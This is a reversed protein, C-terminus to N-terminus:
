QHNQGQLKSLASPPRSFLLAKAPLEPLVTESQGARFVLRHTYPPYCVGVDACGQSTAKLEFTAASDSASTRAALSIPLLIRVSNRYTEVRGFTADQKMKGPPIQAPKLKDGADALAFKFRKKYLYYGPAIQYILEITKADKLRASVTFAQEVDLLDDEAFAPISLLMSLVALWAARGLPSSFLRM